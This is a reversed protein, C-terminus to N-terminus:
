HEAIKVCDHFFHFIARKPYNRFHALEFLAQDTQGSLRLLGERLLEEMGGTLYSKEFFEKGEDRADIMQALSEVGGSVQYDLTSPHIECADKVTKLM